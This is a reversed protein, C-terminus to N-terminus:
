RRRASKRPAAKAPKVPQEPEALLGTEPDIMDTLSTVEGPIKMGISRSMSEMDPRFEAILKLGAAWLDPIDLDNDPDALDQDIDAWDAASLCGRLFHTVGSTLRLRDTTVRSQDAPSTDGAARRSSRNGRVQEAIIEAMGSWVVLKPCRADYEYGGLRLTVTRTREGRGISAQEVRRRTSGSADAQERETSDVDVAAAPTTM